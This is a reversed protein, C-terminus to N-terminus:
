LRRIRDYWSKTGEEEKKFEEYDEQTAEPIFEAKGDPAEPLHDIIAENLDFLKELTKPDKKSLKWLRKLRQLM